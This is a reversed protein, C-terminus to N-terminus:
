RALLEQNRDPAPGEHRVRIAPAVPDDRERLEAAPALPARQPLHGQRPPACPEHSVPRPPWHPHRAPVHSSPSSCWSSSCDGNGPRSQQRPQANARARPLRHRLPHIARWCAEKMAKGERQDWAGPHAPQLRHPWRPHLRHLLPLKPRCRHGGCNPLTAERVPVANSGHSHINPPQKSKRLPHRCSKTSPYKSVSKYIARTLSNTKHLKQQQRPFFPLLLEVHSWGQFSCM